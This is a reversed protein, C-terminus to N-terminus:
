NAGKIEKQKERLGALASDKIATQLRVLAWKVALNLLLQEPVAGVPDSPELSVRWNDVKIPGEAPITVSGVEHIIMPEGGAGM